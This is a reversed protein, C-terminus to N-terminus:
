PLPGAPSTTADTSFARYPPSPGTPLASVAPGASACSVAACALRISPEERTSVSRTRWSSPAVATVLASAASTRSAVPYAMPPTGGKPCRERVRTSAPWASSAWGTTHAAAPVGYETNWRGPAPRDMLNETDM